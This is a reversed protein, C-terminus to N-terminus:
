KILPLKSFVLRIGGQRKMKNGYKRVFRGMIAPNLKEAGSQVQIKQTIDFIALLNSCIHRSVYISKKMIEMVM